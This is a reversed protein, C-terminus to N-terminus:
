PKMWASAASASSGGAGGESDTLGAETVIPAEAVRLQDDILVVPQLAEPLQDPAHALLPLWLMVGATM